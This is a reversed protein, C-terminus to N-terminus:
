GNVPPRCSGANWRTRASLPKVAVGAGSLPPLSVLNPGNLEYHRAPMHLDQSARPVLLQDAHEFSKGIEGMVVLDVAQLSRQLHEIRL